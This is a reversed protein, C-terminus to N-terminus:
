ILRKLSVEVSDLALEEVRVVALVDVTDDSLLLASLQVKLPERDREYM